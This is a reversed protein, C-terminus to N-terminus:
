FACCFTRLAIANIQQDWRGTVMVVFGLQCGTRHV